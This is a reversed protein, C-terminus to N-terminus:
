LTQACGIGWAGGLYSSVSIKPVVCLSLHDFLVFLGLIYFPSLFCDSRFAGPVNALVETLAWLNDGGGM